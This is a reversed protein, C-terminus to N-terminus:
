TPNTRTMPLKRALTMVIKLAHWGNWLFQCILGSGPLSIVMRDQASLYISVRCRSVHWGAMEFGTMATVKAPFRSVSGYRMNIGIGMSQFDLRFGTFFIAAVITRLAPTKTRTQAVIFLTISRTTLKLVTMNRGTELYKDLRKRKPKRYFGWSPAFSASSHPVRSVNTATTVVLRGM